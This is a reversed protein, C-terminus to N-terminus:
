YLLASNIEVNNLTFRQLNKRHMTINKNANM